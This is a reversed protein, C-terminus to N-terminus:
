INRGLYKYRELVYFFCGTEPIATLTVETDCPFEKGEPSVEVTGYEYPNVTASFSFINPEFYYTITTNQNIIFSGYDKSGLDGLSNGQYTYGEETTVRYNIYTGPEYKGDASEPTIDITGEGEKVITLQYM